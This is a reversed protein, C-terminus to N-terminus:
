TSSVVPAICSRDIQVAVSRRLLEISIVVRFSNPVTVLIGELGTFPGSHVRIRQGAQVYPWPEISRGGAVMLRVNELELDSIPTIESGITVVSRVGPTRLVDVRRGYDMRCFVYGPFVPQEISKLRDSWRRTSRFVPLYTEFEKYELCQAVAHEHLSKVTLAFWPIVSTASNCQGTPCLEREVQGLQLM